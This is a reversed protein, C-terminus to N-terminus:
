APASANRRRVLRRVLVAAGMGVLLASAPEPTPVPTPAVRVLFHRHGFYDRLGLWCKATGGPPLLGGSFTLMDHADTIEDAVVTKFTDSKRVLSSSQALSFGDRTNSTSWGAPVYSPYPTVDRADDGDGLPDLVEFSMGIWPTSTRDTASVRFKVNTDKRLGSVLLMAATSHTFLLGVSLDNYGQQKVSSLTVGSSPLYVSVSIPGAHANATASLLAVVALIGVFNRRM